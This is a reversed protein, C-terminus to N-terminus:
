TGAICTAIFSIENDSCWINRCYEHRYYLRTTRVESTGVICTAMISIETDSNWTNQYYVHRHIFYWQRSKRHEPLVRPSLHFRTTRVDSTGVIYTAHCHLSPGHEKNKFPRCVNSTVLSFWSSHLLMHQIISTAAAAALGPWMYLLSPRAACASVILTM